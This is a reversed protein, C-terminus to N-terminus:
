RQGAKFIFPSQTKMAKSGASYFLTQLLVNKLLGSM